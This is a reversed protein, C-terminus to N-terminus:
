LPLFIKFYSSVHSVSCNQSNKDENHICGIKREQLNKNGRFLNYWYWTTEFLINNHKISYLTVKLEPLLRPIMIAHSKVGGIIAGVKYDRTSGSYQKTWVPKSILLALNCNFRGQCSICTLKERERFIDKWGKNFSTSTAIKTVSLSM